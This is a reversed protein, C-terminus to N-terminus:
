RKMANQVTNGNIPKEATLKSGSCSIHVVPLLSWTDSASNQHVSTRDNSDLSNVEYLMLGICFEVSIWASSFVVVYKSCNEDDNNPIHPRSTNLACWLYM